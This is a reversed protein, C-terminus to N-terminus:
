NLTVTSALDFIPAPDRVGLDLRKVMAKIQQGPGLEALQMASAPPAVASSGASTASSAAAGSQGLVWRLTSEWQVQM